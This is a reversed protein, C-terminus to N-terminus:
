PVVDLAPFPSAICELQVKALGSGRIYGSIHYSFFLSGSLGMMFSSIPLPEKKNRMMRIWWVSFLFPSEKNDIIDKLRHSVIETPCIMRM